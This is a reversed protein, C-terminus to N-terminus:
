FDSASVVEGGTRTGLARWVVRSVSGKVAKVSGDAFLVNVAGSHRSAATHAGDNDTHDVACSWMNPTLIHNYRTGYMTGLHWFSGFSYLGAMTAGAAHPDTAGCLSAAQDPDSPLTAIKLVSGPPSLNDAGQADNDLGLGMVRESYAATNSLGDTVDQLRVTYSPFYPSGIGVMGCIVGSPSAGNTATGSGNNGVYNNHGAASALRDSDSPCLFAVVRTNQATLNQPTGPASGDPIAFNIANYVPAQELDPLIMALSSWGFWSGSPEPGQGIPFSGVRQAYNHVALGIQKLNNVCQARRAAERAAQVAPLLLAILVGIIAIVVLLEILTFGRTTARRPPDARMADTGKFHPHTV